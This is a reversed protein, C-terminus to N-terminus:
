PRRHVVTDRGAGDRTVIRRLELAAAEDTVERAADGASGLELGAGVSLRKASAHVADVGADLLAGVNERTVGGGAMIEVAGAAGRVLREIEAVGDVARAAGGSTLVRGVGLEVLQALARERGDLVDFARHFTVAAAGAEDVVARMLDLDVAGDRLGGVVVGDAGADLAIRVDRAILRREDDDYDFDGARPRVLVHAPVGVEVGREILAASPTLGGVSLAACLEIRDAAVRQAVGLGFADQVALEFAVRRGPAVTM